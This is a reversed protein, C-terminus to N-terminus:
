RDPRGCRRRAPGVGTQWLGHSGPQRPQVSGQRQHIVFLDAAALIPFPNPAFPLYHLNTVDRTKNPWNRADGLHVFRIGLPALTKAARVTLEFRKVPRLSAMSVVVFADAPLGLQERLRYAPQCRERIWDPNVGTTITQVQKPRLLRFSQLYSKVASSNAVVATVQPHRVSWYAAPAERFKLHGIRGRYGVLPLHRRNWQILNALHANGHFCQTLDWPETRYLHELQQRYCRDFRSRPALAMASVGRGVLRDCTEDSDCVVRLSVRTALEELFWELVHDAYKTVFLINM